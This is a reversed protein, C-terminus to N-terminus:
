RWAIPTLLDTKLMRLLALAPNRGLEMTDPHVSPLARSVKRVPKADGETQGIGQRPLGCDLPLTLSLCFPYHELSCVTEALGSVEWYGPQNPIPHATIGKEQCVERFRLENRRTGRAQKCSRLNLVALFLRKGNRVLSVQETEITERRRVTGVARGRPQHM